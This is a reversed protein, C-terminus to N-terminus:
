IHCKCQVESAFLCQTTSDLPQLTISYSWSTGSIDYSRLLVGAAFDKFCSLLILLISCLYSSLVNPADELQFGLDTGSFLRISHKWPNLQKQCDSYWRCAFWYGNRSSDITWDHLKLLAFAVLLRTKRSYIHQWWGLSVCSLNIITETCLAVRFTCLLIRLVYRQWIRFLADFSKLLHLMQFKSPLSHRM